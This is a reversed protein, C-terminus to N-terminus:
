TLVLEGVEATHDEVIGLDRELRLSDIIGECEKIMEEADYFGWCSDEITGEPNVINYGYVQGSLFKDYEGVEGMLVKTAKDRKAKTIIRGYEERLKAKTVYIFGVQGSDFEAHGQPLYGQFSGIKIRLGSHDYLYLPLIIFAQRDRILFAEVEGWNNFDASQLDHKDGLDYRRHFCVMTGLNDWSRPDDPLDDQYVKITYGKHDRTEIADV